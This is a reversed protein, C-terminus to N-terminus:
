VYEHPHGLKQGDVQELGQSSTAPEMRRQLIMYQSRVTSRATTGSTGGNTVINYSDFLRALDELVKLLAEFKIPNTYHCTKRRTAESESSVDNLSRQSM